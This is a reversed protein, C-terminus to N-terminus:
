LRQMNFSISKSINPEFPAPVDCGGSAFIAFAEGLWGHVFGRYSCDIGGGVDASFSVFHGNLSGSVGFGPPFPPTAAVQGGLTTCSSSQNAFGEFDSGTQTLSMDGWTNCRLIMIPGESEAVGFFAMAVEGPLVVLIREQWQWDGEVDLDRGLGFGFGFGFRHGFPSKASAAPVAAVAAVLIALTLPLARKLRKPELLKM